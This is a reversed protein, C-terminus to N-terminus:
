QASSSRRTRDLDDVPRSPFRRGSPPQARHSAPPGVIEEGRVNPALPPEPSGSEGRTAGTSSPRVVSRRTHATRHRPTSLASASSVGSAASVAIACYARARACPPPLVGVRRFRDRSERSSRQLPSSAWPTLRARGRRRCAASISGAAGLTFVYSIGCSPIGRPASPSARTSAGHSIVTVCHPLGLRVLAALRAEPRQPLNGVSAVPRPTAPSVIMGALGAPYRRPHRALTELM